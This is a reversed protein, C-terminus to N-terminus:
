QELFNNLSKSVEGLFLGMATKIMVNLSVGFLVVPPIQFDNLKSLFFGVIYVAVMAGARWIFSKVRKIFVESTLFVKIKQIIEM